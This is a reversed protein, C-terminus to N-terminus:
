KMRQKENYFPSYYDSYKDLGEYHKIGNGYIAIVHWRLSDNILELMKHSNKSVDIILYNGEYHLDKLEYYYGNDILSTYKFLAKIAGKKVIDNVQYNLVHISSDPIFALFGLSLDDKYITDNNIDFVIEARLFSYQVADTPVNEFGIRIKISDETITKYVTDINILAIKDENPDDVFYNTKRICSQFVIM